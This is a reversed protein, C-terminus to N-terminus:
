FINIKGKYIKAPHINIKFEKELKKLSAEEKETVISICWGNKGLRGTRGARHLYENHDKPIDLNFIHTVDSIDLGRAALDSATLINYKGNRFGELSNKREEKTATGYICAANIHHYKLKETTILIEDKKNVFIIAKEPNISAILKRILEIKDRQESLFYIHQINENITGNEKIRIVEPNNMLENAISATKNSITASFVMLQRDRQTSKIIEKIVTLNKEDLLKDGEDLVITKITHSKIKKLKILEIIRGPSGTIIHPKDRLKEIQRKINVEGIISMSTINIGSAESLLKIQENVQMTLEHTPTLIVAQMERKMPDIKCFLPLLYALTKGSGTQSEGIIDINNLAPPIASYQIATPATINLKNLGSLLEESIGIKEFTNM